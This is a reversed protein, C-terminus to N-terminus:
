SINHEKEIKWKMETKKTKTTSQEGIEIKTEFISVSMLVSILVSILDSIQLGPKARSNDRTKNKM